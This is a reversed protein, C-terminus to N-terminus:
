EGSVYGRYRQRRSGGRPVHFSEVITFIYMVAKL